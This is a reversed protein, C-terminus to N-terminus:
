HGRWAEVVDQAHYWAGVIPFFWPRGTYGPHIKDHAIGDLSTGPKAKGLMRLATRHGIYTGLAIGRGNWPGAYYIGEPTVGFHPLLDAAFAVKGQWSHSIRVPRLEPFIRCMMVFLRKGSELEDIDLFSARGGFLLRRGDPSLRFYSLLRRTDSVVRRAPILSEIQAPDLSETAIMHSSVPVIRSALWRMSRPVYGNAAILVQRSRISLIKPTGGSAPMAEVLSQFGDPTRHIATVRGHQFLQVGSKLCTDALAQHYLAPHLQGARARVYGGCFADTDVEGRVDGAEVITTERLSPARHRMKEFVMKSHAGIFTGSRVYHADGALKPLLSELFDFATETETVITEAMARGFQKALEDVPRKVGAIVQGGNRSSAGEGIRMADVVVVQTGAQALTLAASCGAYGSGVVLVDTRSPM